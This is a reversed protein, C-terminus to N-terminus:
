FEVVRPLRRAKAVAFEAEKPLTAIGDFGTQEVFEVVVARLEEPEVSALKEVSDLGADVYLRARIGKVGHIRALDSLRVLEEVTDERVGSREALEMRQAKTAGEAILDETTCVGIESLMSVDDPDIGSFGSLKFPTREIREARLAAAAEALEEDGLFTFYYRLAWLDTKVSDGNSEIRDVYAILDVARARGTEGIFSEFRAAKAVCREIASDSRGGKRLFTRFGQEDM